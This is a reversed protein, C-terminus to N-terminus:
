FRFHKAHASLKAALSNTIRRTLSVWQAILHWKTFSHRQAFSNSEGTTPGFSALDSRQNQTHSITAYIPTSTFDFIPQQTNPAPKTTPKTTPKSRSLQASTKNVCSNGLYSQYKNAGLWSALRSGNSPPPSSCASLVFFVILLRKM